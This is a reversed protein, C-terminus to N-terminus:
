QAEAWDWWFAQSLREYVGPSDTMLVVERNVKNSVEGGNLSGVASWREEGIRVLVLKGHLGGGTPNVLQVDMDLGENAAIALVYDATARNSRDQGADDFAADLLIRVKAGRRAANLIRHLRPNPDATPNSDADGWYKDEYLQALLIEDGAGARDLLALLGDDPRMANEPASVVVYRAAEHFTQAEAFPASLVPYIPPAPLEFDIPPKGYKPHDPDYPRLDLFVEPQWDVNFLASLGYAVSSADTILGYGRRGGSPVASTVPAAEWTLNESTVFSHAGDIIGYKAHVYRYRPQYGKPADDTAAMYRVEGGAEAIQTVCWRQLDSIGGVPAGELLVRVQVGREVARAVTEALQPHELVYLSLDISHQAGALANRLPEYLGEPAIMVTTSATEASHLPRLFADTEWGPFAVRRGWDLDALDSSWDTVRNTDIPLGTEPDRKRQLVQGAASIAGHTYAYVPPGEWDEMTYTTSGYLLTDVAQRQRNRLQIYGRENTLALDGLLQLSADDTTSDWVCDPQHGFSQRFAEAEAACWIRQGPLLTLTSTMPFTAHRTATSLQWGALNQAGDGTNWLQVAEDAEGSIASDIHAASIVVTSEPMSLQPLLITTSRDNPPSTQARASYGTCIVAVIALAIAILPM